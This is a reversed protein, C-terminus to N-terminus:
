LLANMELRLTSEKINLEEDTRGEYCLFDIVQIDVNVEEENAMYDGDLLSNFSSSRLPNESPNLLSTLPM